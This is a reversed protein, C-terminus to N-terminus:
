LSAEPTLPRRPVSSAVKERAAEEASQILGRIEQWIDGERSSAGREVEHLPAMRRGFKDGFFPMLEEAVKRVELM